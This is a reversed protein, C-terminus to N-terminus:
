AQSLSKSIPFDASATHINRHHDKDPKHSTSQECLVAPKSSATTGEALSLGAKLRAHHLMLLDSLPLHAHLHVKDGHQGQLAVDMQQGHQHVFLQYHTLTLAYASKRSHLIQSSQQVESESALKLANRGTASAGPAQQHQLPGGSSHTIAADSLSPVRHVSAHVSVAATEEEVESSAESDTFLSSAPPLGSCYTPTCNM